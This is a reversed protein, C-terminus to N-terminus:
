GSQETANRLANSVLVHSIRIGAEALQDRIARLSWGARRLEIMKAIVRQEAPEEILKRTAEDLRWGYPVAGGSYENRAKQQRKAERIREGIRDREFEAFAGLMSLFLKSHGNGTVPDTGGNIDLLYLSIGRGQFNQSVALCDFLNRGLRDLKSAVVVDGRGLREWLKGGEPRDAFPIGGSVGAEVVVRTIPWDRQMAWGEIQRQQVELSQGNEAQSDTSVRTYAYVCPLNSAQAQRRAQARAARERPTAPQLARALVRDSVRRSM